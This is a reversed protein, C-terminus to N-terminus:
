YNWRVGLRYQRRQGGNGIQPNDMVNDIAGFLTINNSWRYSARLDLDIAYPSYNTWNEGPFANGSSPIAVDQGNIKTFTISQLPILINAIGKESAVLGNQYFNSVADGSIRVQTGFSWAGERYNFNLTGSFKRGGTYYGGNTGAGQFDVNVNCATTCGPVFGM